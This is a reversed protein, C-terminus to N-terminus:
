VGCEEGKGKSLGEKKEDRDWKQEGSENQQTGSERVKKKKEQEKKINGKGKAEGKKMGLDWREREEETIKEGDKM